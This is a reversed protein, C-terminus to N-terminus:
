RSHVAFYAAAKKLIDREEKLLANEKKLRKLDEYLHAADLRGQPGNAGQHYKSIWTHWTNEHIGLDRATQAIPQASEVALTVAREKCEVSYLTMNQQSM